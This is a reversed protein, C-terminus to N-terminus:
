RVADLQGLVRVLASLRPTKVGAEVARRLPERFLADLELPQKREFDILTSARYPGMPRTRSIQTEACAPDVKLNQANAATIVEMMLERM